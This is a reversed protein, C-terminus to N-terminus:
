MSKPPSFNPFKDMQFAERDVNFTLQFVFCVSVFVFIFIYIYIYIYIYTHIHTHTYTDNQM